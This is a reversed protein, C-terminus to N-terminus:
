DGPVLGAARAWGVLEPNTGVGARKRAKELHRRVTPVGIELCTAIEDHRLGECVLLVVQLQRGTLRVGDIENIRPAPLARQPAPAQPHGATESAADPHGSRQTHPRPPREVHDRSSQHLRLAFGAIRDVILWLLLPPVIVAIPGSLNGDGDVVHPVALGVGAVVAATVVVRPSTAVGAVGIIAILPMFLQFNHGGVFWSGLGLGAGAAVLVWPWRRLTRYVPAPRVGSAVCVVAFVACVVFGRLQSGADPHLLSSVAAFLSLGAAVWLGVAFVQRYIRESIDVLEAPRQFVVDRRESAPELAETSVAVRM